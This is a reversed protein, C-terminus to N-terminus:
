LDDNNYKFHANQNIVKRIKHVRITYKKKIILYVFQM